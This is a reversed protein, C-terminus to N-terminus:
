NIGPGLTDKVLTLSIGICTSRCLTKSQRTLNQQKM